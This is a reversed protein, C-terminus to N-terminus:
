KGGNPHLLARDQAGYYLIDQRMLQFFERHGVAQTLSGVMREMMIKPALLVFGNNDARWFVDGVIRRDNVTAIPASM